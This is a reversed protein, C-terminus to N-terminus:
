NIHTCRWQKGSFSSHNERVTERGKTESINYNIRLNHGLYPNLIDNVGSSFARMAVRSRMAAPKGTTRRLGNSFSM